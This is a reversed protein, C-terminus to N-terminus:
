AYIKRFWYKYITRKKSGDGTNNMMLTSADPKSSSGKSKLNSSKIGEKSKSEMGMKLKSKEELNDLLVYFIIKKKGSPLKIFWRLDSWYSDPINLSIILNSIFTGNLIATLTFISYLWDSDTLINLEYYKFAFRVLLSALWVIVITSLARPSFIRTIALKIRGFTFFKFV